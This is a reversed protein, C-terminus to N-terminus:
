LFDFPSEKGKKGSKTAVGSMMSEMGEFRTPRTDSRSQNELVVSQPKGKWDHVQLSTKMPFASLIALGSGNTKLGDLYGEFM